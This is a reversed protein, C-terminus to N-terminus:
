QEIWTEPPNKSSFINRGGRTIIEKNKFRAITTKFSGEFFQIFIGILFLSLTIIGFTNNDLYIALLLMLFLASHVIIRKPIVSLVLYRKGGNKEFRTRYFFEM